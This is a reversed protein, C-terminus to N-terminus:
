PTNDSESYFRVGYDKRYQKKKKDPTLDIQKGKRRKSSEGCAYRSQDNIATPTTSDDSLAKPSVLPVSSPLHEIAPENLDLGPSASTPAQSIPRHSSIDSSSSHNAPPPPTPNNSGGGEEWVPVMLVDAEDDVVHAGDNHHNGQPALYPCHDVDHNIRCCNSCIRHLREYEFGIMAGERSEFRVRRFFRLRDTISIRVKVRIIAIQTSTEEDFDLGMVPGLTSAIFRVTMTSVYLVPIGRVQVWLDIYTLFDARPFDEWRQLAVFWQNFLWPGRLMVSALDIGSRFRFQICRDDIIRGHVRSAMGWSRPLARLVRRLHQAHINLPRAILSLRNGAVVVGYAAQPVFLEPDDRGLVM